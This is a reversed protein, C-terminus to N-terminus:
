VLRLGPLLSAHRANLMEAATLIRGGAMQLKEIRLVGEGTAIDLGEPAARVIQGPEFGGSNVAPLIRAQWIKLPKKEDGTFAVPWPNFARIQRAIFDAPQLWDIQADKRSIKHAYTANQDSQPEPTLTPLAALTQVLTKAGLLALRDHVSATTDTTEIPCSAKMLMAGTDLGEDMQMITIGTETDGALIARHIPAAGRWRPLLSGHVNICGLRPTKLIEKPLILGFAVVIMLDAQFSRAREQEDPDRLTKPQLVTLGHRLACDKVPSSHIKQGRGAPRDPQTYVAKLTHGAQILAELSPVAFDPTGAFIIQLSM